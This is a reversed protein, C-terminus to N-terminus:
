ANQIKSLDIWDGLTKNWEDPEFDDFGSADYFTLEGFYLVDNVIYWDVRIHLIGQSLIESLRLMEDLVSPRAFGKESNPLGSSIQCISMRNWEPDYFDQVHQGNFRGSHVEILRPKGNFCLVKYDKLEGSGDDMYKEAIIKREVDRYVYEKTLSSFDRKMAKELKSVTSSFDLKSKDKCIVVGQSDHNCKLVFQSPLLDFDIESPSDWVAILPILYKDGIKNRIIERVKYKDVLNTYEPKRDHLKLWQLKENFERPNKLNLVKGTKIKYVMKLYHEDSMFRFVWPLKASCYGYILKSLKM